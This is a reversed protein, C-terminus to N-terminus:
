RFRLLRLSNLAVLTTAGTDALVAPWLGTVGLLTTTLFVAKLGLAFAINQAVVRM